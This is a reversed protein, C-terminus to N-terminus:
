TWTIGNIAWYGINTTTPLPAEFRAWSVQARRPALPPKIGLYVSQSKVATDHAWTGNGTTTGACTATALAIGGGVGTSQTNDCRETIDALNANTYGSANTTDTANDSLGIVWVILSNATVTIGTTSLGTIETGHGAGTGVVIQTADATTIGHGTITMMSGTIHNLVGNVTVNGTGGAPALRSFITLTTVNLEDSGETREFIKNWNAPTNPTGAATTSNSSEVFILLLNGESQTSATITTSTTGATSITSTNGHAPPTTSYGATVQNGVLRLYLSSYDTISDAEISTLTYDVQTWGSSIDTNNLATAILTGQSGENSYGQRLEAVLSITDGSTTDKGYRMSVIHDTSIAPDALTNFKTVYVDSSPALITRIYDTDDFDIEDIQDYLSTTTGDDEEWNDRLTDEIPYTYIQAM